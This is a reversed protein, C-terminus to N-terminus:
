LQSEFENLKNVADSYMSNEKPHFGSLKLKYRNRYASYYIKYNSTEFTKSGTFLGTKTFQGIGSWVLKWDNKGFLFERITM